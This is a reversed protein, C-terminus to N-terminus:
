VLTSPLIDKISSGIYDVAVQFQIADRETMPVDVDDVIRTCRTTVVRVRLDRRTERMDWQYSHRDVARM